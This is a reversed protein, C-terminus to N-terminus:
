PLLPQPDTLSGDVWTQFHLHCGTSAGTTGVWGIVQGQAVTTGVRVGYGQAHNYSTRLTHGGVTGHDIVLRNGYGSSYSSLAVTGAAAAVIPTGCAAAIDLGDHFKWTGYIPHLRLGYGSSIVGTTPAILGAASVGGAAGSRALAAAHERVAELSQASILRIPGAGLLSLPDRYTEGAKLGWHLCAEGPCPAHGAQLVGIPDGAAVPAGARLSSAVPEYTTTFEGHNVSVVGHGAVTGAFSVVGALPAVITAGSAGVIDVGRHGPLWDPDPADFERTVDGLLPAVARDAAQAPPPVILSLAVSAAVLLLKKM